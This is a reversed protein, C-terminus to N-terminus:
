REVVVDVNFLGADLRRDAKKSSKVERFAWGIGKTDVYRRLSGAQHTIQNIQNTFDEGPM